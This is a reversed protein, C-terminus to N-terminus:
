WSWDVVPARNYVEIVREAIPQPPASSYSDRSKRDAPTIFEEITPQDFEETVTLRVEYRGVEYLILNLTSVNADNFPVWPNNSFDGDNEADYRYEWKRHALFDYDPSFSMDTLAAVAQNGNAPDRYIKGPASFYVVPPDDPIIDFTMSTSDGFGATNTVTLTAKYTGPKKFLVDKSNMGSLNGLYKIDAATGGSVPSITWQTKTEDIPYHEPSRSKSLLTVKRNEKKTGKVAIEAHPVPQIVNIKASTSGTLGGNDTVTLRVSHQGLSSLPYWTWGFPGSVTEVAGPTNYKYDVIKGDPDYSDKGYILTEEGAMVEESVDLIAKPPKNNNAPPPTTPVPSDSVEVTAKMTKSLSSVTGNGTVVPKAFRVTVTLTYEQKVNSGRSKPIVFNDFTQTSNLVKGYDKKTKVDSSGTEKAYFIWEEINSSNNYALLDGKVRLSVETDKGEFKAPNPSPKLISVGGDLTPETPLAYDFTVSGSYSYSTVQADALYYYYGTVQYRRGEAHGSLDHHGDDPEARYITDLLGKQSEPIYYDLLIRQDKFYVKTINPTKKIDKSSFELVRVSSQIIAGSDIAINSSNNFWKLGSTTLNSKTTVLRRPPNESPTKGDDATLDYSKMTDTVAEYDNIQWRRGDSYLWISNGPTTSFPQQFTGDFGQVNSITETVSKGKLTAKIQGNEVALSVVENNGSYKLSNTSILSANIGSPLDLYFSKASNNSGTLGNTVPISVSAAKTSAAQADAFTLFSFILTFSLLVLGIKSKM